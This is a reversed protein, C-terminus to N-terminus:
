RSDGYLQRRHFQARLVTHGSDAKRFEMLENLLQQMRDANNKILHVYRKAYNDLEVRELLQQAPGYILTLPTFFEHAINEFFNLQSEHM